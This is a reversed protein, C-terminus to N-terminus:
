VDLIRAPQPALQGAVIVKHLVFPYVVGKYTGILLLKGVAAGHV